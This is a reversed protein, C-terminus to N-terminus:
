QQASNECWKRWMARYASETNRAFRKADMLVSCELRDRLGARLERLRAHDRALAVALAVYDGKNKVALETLGVNSLISLSGRSVCTAGPLTIVPVGMWLGDLTTIGGSYPFPDLALDIRHYNKFYDLRSERPLGILRGPAVGLKERIRATIKGKPPVLVLRSDPVASLIERWVELVADNVKAFNNLCGFTIYGNKGAPLPRVAPSNAPPDFCWISELHISQETCFHRTQRPPDLVPDTFRYDMRTLGTSGPYALWTVQVPAPKRAFMGLRVGDMHMVLDVLVDIRDQLVQTALEADSLRATDRWVDAGQRFAATMEDLQTTDSYCYIEFQSRNYERFSPLLSYGVVHGRFYPSVFGIRLRRNSSPDNAYVSTAPIASELARGWAAHEAYIRAPDCSPDFHMSYLYNSSERIKEPFLRAGERFSALAEEIRGSLRLANGLNTHLGPKQPALEMVKRFYTEAAEADDEGAHYMALNWLTEVSGPQLENFHEWLRRARHRQGCTWFVLAADHIVMPADPALKLAQGILKLAVDKPGANAAIFAGYSLARPNKPEVLLAQDVFQAAAAYDRAQLPKDAQNLLREVFPNPM